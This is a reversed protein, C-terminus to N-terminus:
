AAAGRRDRLYRGLVAALYTEVAPLPLGAQALPRSTQANSFGQDEALYALVPPLARLARRANAGGLLGLVPVMASLVRLNVPKLAPVPRGSERWLQRVQAQLATLPMAREPGSCLHLVSGATSPETSSWYLADAVWDVPVTDLRTQGLGPMVGWTRAGSLFECLHYFVQFSMVRGDVRRGVVMSPRHVTVPLEGQLSWVLKEAEAKAAEYTNHFVDVEPVPREPLVGPTRGWVGVTSVLEVKQLPGGQRAKRALALVSATPTVATARALDMPMNLKVSAACHIIHTASSVLGAWQAPALGLEPKLIDGSLAHLRHAVSSDATTGWHALLSQRRAELATADDARVLISVQTDPERLIREVVASGVTGTAGTVFYHRSADQSM